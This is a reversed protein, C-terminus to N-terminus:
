TRREPRNNHVRQHGHWQLSNAARSQPSKRTNHCPTTRTKQKETNHSTQRRRGAKDEPPRPTDKIHQTEYANRKTAEQTHDRTNYTAECRQRRNTSSVDTRLCAGRTSQRGDNLYVSPVSTFYLMTTWPCPPNQRSRVSRKEGNRGDYTVRPRIGVARHRRPRRLCRAGWLGCAVTSVPGGGVNRSALGVRGGGEGWTVTSALSCSGERAADGAAPLRRECGGWGARAGVGGGARCSAFPPPHAPRRAAVGWGHRQGSAGRGAYRRRRRPASRAAASFVLPDWRWDGRRGRGATRAAAVMATPNTPGSRGVRGAGGATRGGGARREQGGGWRGRAM